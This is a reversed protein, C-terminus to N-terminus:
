AAPRRDWASEACTAGCHELIRAPPDSHDGEFVYEARDVQALGRQPREGIGGRERSPVRGPQGNQVDDRGEIGQRHVLARQLIGHADHVRERPIFHQAFQAPDHCLGAHIRGGGFDGGLCARIRRRDDVLGDRPPGVQQHHPCVPPASEFPQQKSRDGLLHQM